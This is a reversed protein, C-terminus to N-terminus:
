YLQGRDYLEERRLLGVPEINHGGDLAAFLEDVRRLDTGDTPKPNLIVEVRTGPTFPVGTLHIEGHSDVTSSTEYPNM